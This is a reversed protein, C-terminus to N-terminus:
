ATLNIHLLVGCECALTTEGRYDWVQNTTGCTGCDFEDFSEAPEGESAPEYRHRLDSIEEAPWAATYGEFKQACIAVRQAEALELGTGIVEDNGAVVDAATKNGIVSYTMAKVEEQVPQLLAAAERAAGLFMEADGLRRCGIAQRASNLWRNVKPDNLSELSEVEAVSSGAAGVLDAYRAACEPGIGRSISEPNTLQRKCIQCKM